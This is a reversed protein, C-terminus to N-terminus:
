DLAVRCCIEQELTSMMCSPHQFVVKVCNMDSQNHTELATQRIQSSPLSLSKVEQVSHMHRCWKVFTSWCTGRKITATVDEYYGVNSPEYEPQANFHSYQDSVAFSCDPFPANSVDKLPLAAMNSGSTEAIAFLHHSVTWQHVSKTRNSGGPPHIKSKEFIMDSTKVHELSHFTPVIRSNRASTCPKAHGQESKSTQKHQM